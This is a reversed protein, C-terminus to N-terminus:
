VREFEALGDHQLHFHPDVDPRELYQFGPHRVFRVSQADFPGGSLAVFLTVGLMVAMLPIYTPITVGAFVFSEPLGLFYLLCRSGVAPIIGFNFLGALFGLLGTFLRFSKNYRIEFFQALTMARTERYRYSVFGSIGVILVVPISLWQWWNLTFGAHSIQEFAAVFVVAGAQLEGGAIALLYRKASRNASLFDAVSRVHRQALVGVVLVVVLPLFSLIWDITHM